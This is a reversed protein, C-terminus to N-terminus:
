APFTAGVHRDVEAGLFSLAQHQGLQVPSGLRVNARIM